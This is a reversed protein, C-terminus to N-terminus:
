QRPPVVETPRDVAIMAALPHSAACNPGLNKFRPHKLCLAPTAGNVAGDRCATCLRSFGAELQLSYDLSSANPELADFLKGSKINRFYDKVHKKVAASNTEPPLDGVISLKTSRPWQAAGHCSLCASALNDAPGNVRGHFGPWPRETWGFVVNSLDPNVAGEKMTLGTKGPDNGWHLGVPVLNDFFGDGTAPGRWIYTGFVWGTGTARKDKAAIDVQLLRVRREVRNAPDSGGVVGQTDVMAAVEPSGQLYSVSSGEMDTFLLKFSATGEEFLRAKALDPACPQKFVQGLTFAGQANYWGVAWVQRGGPSNPSLQKPSPSREKTLGNLRERGFPGYDMWRAIWWRPGPGMKLHSNADIGLGSARITGLIATMYGKWDVRFDVAEWPRPDNPLTAPYDTRWALDVVGTAPNKATSGTFDCSQAFAPLTFVLVSLAAWIRSSFM